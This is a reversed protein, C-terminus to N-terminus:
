KYVGRYPRRGQATRLSYGSVESTESHESGGDM